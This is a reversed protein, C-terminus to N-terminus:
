EGYHYTGDMAFPTTPSQAQCGIGNAATAPMKLGRGELVQWILHPRMNMDLHLLIANATYTPEATHNEGATGTAAPDGPDLAQPTVSTFTGAATYRQFLYGVANDAPTARSGLTIMLIEPRIAATSTIAGMTTATTNTDSFDVAYKRSM